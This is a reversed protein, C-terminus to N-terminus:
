SHEWQLAKKDIIQIFGSKGESYRDPEHMFKNALDLKLTEYKSAELPHANMFEVFLRHREIEPNGSEFVHIHHTRENGGKQFFRRGKIGFEGKPEYGCKEFETNHKDVEGVSRVELLIDIVPKARIGLIATSGIHYAAILNSSLIVRIIAVESKFSTSWNADYKELKITRSSPTRTPTVSAALSAPNLNLVQTVMAVIELISEPLLVDIILTVFM